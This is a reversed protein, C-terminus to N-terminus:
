TALADLDEARRLPPLLRLKPAIAHLRQLYDASQYVVVREGLGHRDIAEALREPAVDKADCYLQVGNPVDHLFADLTPLPTGRFASGFWAGADLTAVEAAAHRAIPGKGNTTRDLRDDHLLFLGGDHTTRVDFEVFDAGLRAAKAFAPATNEPAYRGAGRHLSVLVPPRRGRFAAFTRRALFEEPLDTQIWDAGAAAIRDWVEPRDRHRLVQAQVRVGRERFAKADSERLEDADIEVADPRLSEVWSDFGDAPRWLPMVAVDPGAAGRVIALQAPTGFVVVQRQMGADRIERALRAFDADKCDLCLNIKGRAIRFAEDLDLMREGEYRAALDRGVDVRSLEDFTREAVLLDPRGAAALSPAHWLVHRGDRTRRVDVEAWEFGDDVFRLLASRSNEPAPHAAGRHAIVQVPRPPRLPQFFDFPLAHIIEPWVSLALAVWFRRRNM